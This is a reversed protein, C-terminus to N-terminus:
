VGTKRTGREVPHGSREWEAFGGPLNMIGSRGEKQLISAAIISRSGVQCAIIVNEEASASDIRGTGALKM